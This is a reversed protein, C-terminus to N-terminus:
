RAQVDPAQSLTHHREICANLDRIAADGDHAIALLDAAAAPDLEARTPAPGGATLPAPPLNGSALQPACAPASAPVSLRLAGTLVRQRLRENESQAHAKEQQRTTELADLQGQLAQARRQQALLDTALQTAQGARQQAWQAQVGNAGALHGAQHIQRALLFLALPLLVTALAAPLWERLAKGFIM